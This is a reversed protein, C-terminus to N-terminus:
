ACDKEQSQDGIEWARIKQTRWDLPAELAEHAKVLSRLWRAIQIPVPSEDRLWRLPMNRHCKLLRAVHRASWGLADLAAAFEAATM